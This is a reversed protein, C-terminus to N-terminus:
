KWLALGATTNHDADAKSLKRGSGDFFIAVGRNKHRYANECWISGAPLAERDPTWTQSTWEGMVIWDIADVFQIVGSKAQGLNPAIAANKQSYDWWNIYRYGPASLNLGYNARITLSSRYSEPCRLGPSLQAGSNPTLELNALFEQNMRWDYSWDPAGSGNTQYVPVAFGENGVAYGSSALGFQRLNNLCKNAKAASRVMGVAPLIMAALIAIIAIVVLLEILTFATDASRPRSAKRSQHAM